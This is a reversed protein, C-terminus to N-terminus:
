EACVAQVSSQITIVGQPYKTAYYDKLDQMNYLFQLAGNKSM